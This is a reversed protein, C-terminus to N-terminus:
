GWVPISVDRQLVMHDSFLAPLKVDAGATISFLVGLGSM